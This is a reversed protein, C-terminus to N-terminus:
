RIQDLMDQTRKRKRCHVAQRYSFEITRNEVSCVEYSSDRIETSRYIQSGNLEVRSLMSESFM